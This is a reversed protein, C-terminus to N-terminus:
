VFGIDIWRSQFWTQVFSIIKFATKGFGFFINKFGVSFGNDASGFSFIAGFVIRSKTYSVAGLVDNRQNIFQSHNIKL